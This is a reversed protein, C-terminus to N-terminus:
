TRDIRIEGSDLEVETVFEISSPVPDARMDSRIVFRITLEEENQKDREIRMTRPLLRPEFRKLASELEHRIADIKATEDITRDALDTLGYNLISNRVYPLDDILEPAASELDITNLLAALDEALLAKLAADSLSRRREGTSRRSAIVREGQETRLDIQKRADGAAAASRFAYMLPARLRENIKTKAM